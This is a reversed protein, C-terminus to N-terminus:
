ILTQMKAFPTYSTRIRSRVQESNEYTTDADVMQRESEDTNLCITEYPPAQLGHQLWQSHHRKIHKNLSAYNIYIKDCGDLGCQIESRNDKHM